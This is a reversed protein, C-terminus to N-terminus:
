NGMEEKLSISGGGKEDSSAKGRRVGDEGGRHKGLGTEGVTDGFTDTIHERGFRTAIVADRKGKEVGSEEGNNLGSLCEGNTIPKEDGDKVLANEPQEKTEENAPGGVAEETEGFSM